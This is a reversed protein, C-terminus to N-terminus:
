FLYMKMLFKEIAEMDLAHPLKTRQAALEFQEQYEDAMVFIEDFTHRGDRIDLLLGQEERRKTVIGKGDLIDTGMMLLRILHMAHKYLSELSKKNNRHNLKTYTRVIHNLESSIGVFDKV